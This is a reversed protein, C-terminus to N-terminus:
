LFICLSLFSHLQTSIIHVHSVSSHHTSNKKHQLVVTLRYDNLDPWLHKTEKRREMHKNSSSYVPRLKQHLPGVCRKFKVFEAWIAVVVSSVAFINLVNIARMYILITRCSRLLFKILIYLCSIIGAFLCFLNPQYTISSRFRRYSCIGLYCLFRM